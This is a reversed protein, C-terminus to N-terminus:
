RMKRPTAAKKVYSLAVAGEGASIAVISSTEEIYDPERGIIKSIMQAFELGGQLNNIHVINYSEIQNNKLVKKLHRIIKKISSRSSFAITELDGKGEQDLTVIPKLGIIRGIKGARTSLRGSKVMNDLTNVRVLIKSRPISDEIERVIQDHHYGKKLLRAAKAVLLGQAGSNQRSDIVSIKFGKQSIKKASKMFTNCTGSLERSVSIVIASEYYSELYSFLNDVQKMDPQSSTPLKPDNRSYDLIEGPTVTLRDIFTSDRYLLSLNVIHIQEEEIMKFPLDAISDTVIAIPYKRNVVIERQKVMDDVKPSIVKGKKYILSFVKAPENTHIHIRATKKGVAVILSDGLGELDKKIEDEKLDKGEILCETCYRFKINELDHSVFDKSFPISIDQDIIKEDCVQGTKFYELIGHIFLAFGKAGADVVRAKRLVELQYQTKALADNLKEVAHHMRSMIETKEHSEDCLAYGWERMVTLITGEVPNEISSFAYDVARISARAYHNITIVASDALEASLGYFYEAFIIGSNGRAGKMAAESFSEMTKKVTNKKESEDIITRMMSSLNNGTDGDQVPFVNISNLDNKNNIIKRAGNIFGHYISDSDLTKIYEEM